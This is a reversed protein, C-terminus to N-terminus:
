TKDWWEPDDGDATQLAPRDNVPAPADKPPAPKRPRMVEHSALTKPKKAGHLREWIEEGEKGYVAVFRAKAAEDDSPPPLWTM